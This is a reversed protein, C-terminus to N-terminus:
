KITIKTIKIKKTTDTVYKIYDKFLPIIILMNSAEKKIILKKTRMIKNIVHKETLFNHTELFYSQIGAHSRPIIFDINDIHTLTSGFSYLTENINYIFIRKTESKNLYVFLITLTNKCLSQIINFLENSLDLINISIYETDFNFSSSNKINHTESSIQVYYIGCFLCKFINNIPDNGENEKSCNPCKSTTM